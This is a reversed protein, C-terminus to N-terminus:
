VSIENRVDVNDVAKSIDVDLNLFQVVREIEPQPNSVIDEFVVEIYNVNEEKLIHEIHHLTLQQRMFVDDVTKNEFWDIYTNTTNNRKKIELDLQAMKHLGEAQTDRDRRKCFIVNEIDNTNLDSFAAGMIKVACGVHEPFGFDIMKYIEKIPLEWYGKPNMDIIQQALIGTPDEKLMTNCGTDTEPTGLMPVGLHYLTQMMLSSGCRGAGTVVIM